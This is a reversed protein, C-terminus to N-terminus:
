RRRRRARALALMLAPGLWAIPRAGSSSTEAAACSCGGSNGSATGGDSAGGTGSTGGTAGGTGASAGGVGTASAGGTAGTGGTGSGTAGGGATTGGAGGGGSASGATGGGAAGGTGGSGVSAGGRGGAGGGAGGAAGGRGGAGAAGSAGGTGGTGTTGMMRAKVRSVQVDPTPDFRDYVLLVKGDGRSAIDHNGLPEDLLKVPQADVVTGDGGIRRAWVGRGTERWVAWFLSGDYALTPTSLAPTAVGISDPLGGTARRLVIPSTDLAHGNAGLRIARLESTLAGTTEPTVADFLVLYRTGDDDLALGTGQSPFANGILNPTTDLPAGTADVRITKLQLGSGGAPIYMDLWAVLTTAGIARAVSAVPNIYPALFMKQGFRGDAGVIQEWGGCAWIFSTGNWAIGDRRVWGPITIPTPLPDLPAGQADFRIGYVLGNDGGGIVATGGTPGAGISYPRQSKDVPMGATAPHGAVPHGDTGLPMLGAFFTGEAAAVVFGSPLAAVLPQQQAYATISILRESTARARGGANLPLSYIGSDSATFGQRYTMLMFESGRGALVPYGGAAATVTAATDVAALPDVTYRRTHVGPNSPDPQVLLINTGNWAVASSFTLGSASTTLSAVIELNPGLTFLKAQQGVSYVVPTGNASVAWVGYPNGDSPLTAPGLRPHGDAALTWAQTQTLFVLDNGSRVVARNYDTPTAIAAPPGLMALNVNVPLASMAETGAEGYVILLESGNWGLGFERVGVASIALTASAAATGDSALRVLHIDGGDIAGVILDGGTVGDGAYVASQWSIMGDIELATKRVPVGDADTVMAYAGDLGQWVAVCRDPGCASSFGSQLISLGYGPDATTIEPGVVIPDAALAPSTWAAALVLVSARMWAVTQGRGVFHRHPYSPLPSPDAAERAMRKM